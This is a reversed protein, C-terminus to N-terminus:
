VLEAVVFKLRMMRVSLRLEKKSFLLAGDRLRLRSTLRIKPAKRHRKWKSKRVM